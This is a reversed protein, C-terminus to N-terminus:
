GERGGDQRWRRPENGFSGGNLRLREIVRRCTLRGPTTKGSSLSRTPGRGSGLRGAAEQGQEAEGVCVKGLELEKADWPSKKERTFAM